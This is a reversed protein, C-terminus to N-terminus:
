TVKSSRSQKERLTLMFGLMFLGVIGLQALLVVADVPTSVNGNLGAALGMLGLADKSVLDPPSLLPRYLVPHSTGATLYPSFLLVLAAALISVWLVALQRGNTGTIGTETACSRRSRKSLLM